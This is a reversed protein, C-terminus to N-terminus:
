GDHNRRRRGGRGTKTAYFIFAAADGLSGSRRGRYGAGHAQAPTRSSKSEANILSSPLRHWRPASATSTPPRSSGLAPPSPQRSGAQTSIPLVPGSSSPCRRPASLPCPSGLPSTATLRVIVEDGPGVDWARLALELAQLGNAVGICHRTGCDTARDAEFSEVEPNLVYWGSRLVRLTAEDLEESLEGYQRHLELFPVEHM